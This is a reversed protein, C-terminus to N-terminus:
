RGCRFRQTWRFRVSYRLKCPHIGYDEYCRRGGRPGRGGGGALGLLAANLALLIEDDAPELVKVVLRSVKLGHKGYEGALRGYRETDDVPEDRVVALLEVHVIKQLATLEHYVEVVLALELRVGLAEEVGEAAALADAELDATLRRDLLGSDTLQIEEPPRDLLSDQVVNELVGGCNFVIHIRAEPLVVTLLGLGLCGSTTALALFHRLRGRLGYRM